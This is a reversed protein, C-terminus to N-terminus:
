FRGTWAVGAVGRPDVFVSATATKNKKALVAYRIVGALVLSGGIALAALGGNRLATAQKRAEHYASNKEEDDVKKAKSTAVGLLAAGVAVGALGTGTLIGGVPDAIWKKAKPTEDRTTVSAIPVRARKDKAPEPVFTEAAEDEAPREPPTDDAVEVEADEIAKECTAIHGRALEAIEESPGSRLVRRYLKIAAECHGQKREAQAWPYLLAPAPEVLYAAEIAEAAAAFDGQKFAEQAQTFKEQAAPEDLFGGPGSRALLLSLSLTAALAAHLM